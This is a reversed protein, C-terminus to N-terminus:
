RVIVLGSTQVSVTDVGGRLNRVVIYPSSSARGDCTLDFTTASGNAFVIGRPLNWRRSSAGDVVVVRNPTTGADLNITQTRGTAMARSRALLVQQGIAEATGRAQQSQSLSAYSGVSFALVISLVVLVIALEVLSFGDAGRVRPSM